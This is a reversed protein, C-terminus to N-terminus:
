RGIPAATNMDRVLELVRVTEDGTLPRLLDAQSRSTKVGSEITYTQLLHIRRAIEQLAKLDTM